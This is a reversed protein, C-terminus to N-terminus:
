GEENYSNDERDVTSHAPLNLMYLNIPKSRLGEVAARATAEDCPTICYISGQGFFKTFAPIGNMEPVDVRIFPSGGIVAETVLGAIVSRGMLEVIAFNSFTESM